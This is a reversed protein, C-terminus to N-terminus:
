FVLDFELCHGWDPSILWHGQGENVRQQVRTPLLNSKQLVLVRGNAVCQIATVRMWTLLPMASQHTAYQLHHIYKVHQWKIIWITSDPLLTIGYVIIRALPVRPLKFDKNHWM